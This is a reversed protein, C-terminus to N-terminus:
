LIRKLCSCSEQAPAQPSKDQLSVSGFAGEWRATPSRSPSVMATFKFPEPTHSDESAPSFQDYVKSGRDSGPQVECATGATANLRTEVRKMAVAAPIPRLGTPAETNVKAPEGGPRPNTV